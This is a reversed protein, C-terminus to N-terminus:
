TPTSCRRTARAAAGCCTTTRRRAPPHSGPLPGGSRRRLRLGGPDPNTAAGAQYRPNSFLNATGWLLEVGTREQHERRARGDRRTAGGVRQVVRGRARHRPRPLLLVARRAQRLVRVRGGDEAQGCGDPRRRRSPRSAVASRAHRRRLHRLRGLRLPALLLRRLPPPGGDAARRRRPRRRVLPVGLPNDSDPGEFAIRDTVDTFFEM